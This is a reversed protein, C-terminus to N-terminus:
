DMEGMPMSFRMEGDYIIFFGLGGMSTFLILLSLNSCKM